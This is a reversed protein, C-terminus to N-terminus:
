PALVRKIELPVRGFNLILGHKKGAARLYSRVIALHVDEVATIAKLDVVIKDELVLDLRHLGVPKGDYYVHIEPQRLFQVGRKDLEICLAEEYVSELFGPGLKRQVQIAAGIVAETTEEHELM